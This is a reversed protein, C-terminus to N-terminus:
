QGSEPYSIREKPLLLWQERTILLSYVLSPASVFEQDTDFRLTLCHKFFILRQSNFFICHFILYPTYQCICWKNQMMFSLRYSQCSQRQLSKNLPIIFRQFDFKIRWYEALSNQRGGFRKTNIKFYFWVNHFDLM